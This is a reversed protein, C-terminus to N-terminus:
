STPLSPHSIPTTTLPIHSKPHPRPMRTVTSQGASSSIGGPLGIVAVLLVAAVLAAIVLRITRTRNM